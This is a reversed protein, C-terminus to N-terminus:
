EANAPAQWIAEWQTWQGRSSPQRVTSDRRLPLVVRWRQFLAALELDSYFHILEGSKPGATYRVTFGGDPHQEVVEHDPWVDTGVANVRVAFLGGEAVRVQAARLHRHADVRAGHQLVQIAVIAGWRREAPLDALTGCRFRDAHAPLRRRVQAIATGSIDVGTVDLGAAVLAVANRGNGCGLDLVTGVSYARAAAIVDAIFAVAPEDLYRGRRYEADWSAGAGHTM